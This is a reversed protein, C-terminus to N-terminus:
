RIAVSPAGIAPPPQHSARPQASAAPPVEMSHRSAAPPVGILHSSAPDKKCYCVRAGESDHSIQFPLIYPASGPQTCKKLQFVRVGEPNRENRATFYVSGKPFTSMEQPLICPGSRPRTCKKCYFVRVGEPNHANRTTFYVSEKPTTHM